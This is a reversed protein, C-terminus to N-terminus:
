EEIESLIELDGSAIWTKDTRLSYERSVMAWENPYKDSSGMAWSPTFIFEEGQFKKLRPQIPNGNYEPRIAVKCRYRKYPELKIDSKM